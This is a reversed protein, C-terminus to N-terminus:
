PYSLNCRWITRNELWGHQNLWLYLSSSVAICAICKFPLLITLIYSYITTYFAKWIFCDDYKVWWLSKRSSQLMSNGGDLQMCVVWMGASVQPRQHLWASIRWPDWSIGASQRCGWTCAGRELSSIQVWQPLRCGRSTLTYLFGSM